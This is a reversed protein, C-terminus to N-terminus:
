DLYPKLIESRMPHRLKKLAKQEIQRIREKTIGYVEGLQELTRPSNGDLGFRAIIIEQERADLTSLVTKIAKSLIENDIRDDPRDVNPDAILDELTGDDEDNLATNLSIPEKILTEVEMVKKETIGMYKAIEAVTADRNFKERLEAQARNYKVKLEQMHVPVRITKASNAIARSITQKIWYMAYTSFRYGRTHDYLDVAKILGINGEQVLDEFSLSTNQTSYHKAAMIVLRLNSSVLTDKAKKDGENYKKALAIEEEANLLPITKLQKAYTQFGTNKKM